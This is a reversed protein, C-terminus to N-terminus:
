QPHRNNRYDEIAQGPNQLGRDPNRFLSYPAPPPSPYLFVGTRRLQDDGVAGQGTSHGFLLSRGGTEQDPDSERDDRALYLNNGM